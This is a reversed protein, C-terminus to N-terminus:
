KQVVPLKLVFQGINEDQVSWSISGQTDTANCKFSVSNSHSRCRSSLVTGDKIFGALTKMNNIKNYYSLFILRVVLTAVSFFFETFFFDNNFISNKQKM